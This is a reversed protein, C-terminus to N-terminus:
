SGRSGPQTPLWVDWRGRLGNAMAFVPATLLSAASRVLSSMQQFRRPRSLATVLAVLSGAALILMVARGSTRALWLTGSVSAVFALLPTALRLLKHACFDIWVPNRLPSLASPNWRIFQVLGTLTRVKKALREDRSLRRPDLAIADEVLGVRHGRQALGITLFLDDCICEPPLPAWASRLIATIAGSTTVLGRGAAQGRRIGIEFDWYRRMVADDRELAVVGSVAACRDVDFGRLLAPITEPTFEQRSDVLLLIDGTAASAGANLAAAKGGPSDGGIVRVPQGPETLYETLSFPSRFDVAVVIDLLSAPYDTSLLNSIRQAVVDPPERTALVCTVTQGHAPRGCAPGRRRRVLAPYLFWGSALTLFSAVFVALLLLDFLPTM